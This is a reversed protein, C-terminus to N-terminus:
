RTISKLWTGKKYHRFVLPIKELEDLYLLIYVWVPPLKFVFAALFGLPVSICWMVIGDVVFGYRADGGSRFVGCILVTNIAAGVSSVCNIFLLSDRYSAALPTLDAVLPLVPKLCFLICASIVGVLTTSKVLRSANRKVLPLDGEGIQKGLLIAGGYAMGFFLVSTLDRITSIVSNAAVIEEGMHGLIISYSAWAAGWVFENGIAPLSYKIFDTTLLKNKCFIASLSLKVEKIRRAFLISIIVEIIRAITTALAVGFLGLKPAGFLGFIFTANLIINLGLALFTICTVTKVHELSKLLAQFVQSISLCFYSISVTKLYLAGNEILNIDDTFILMLQRSFFFTLLFFIIGAVSSIRLAIGMLTRISKADKKGWYQATLMILGSSLGTFFMALLFQVRSALSVSAIATQSVLGLMFVDVSNVACTIFNQIAIPAVIKFLSKYFTKAETKTNTNSLLNEESKM